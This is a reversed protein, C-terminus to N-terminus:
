LVLFAYSWNVHYQSIDLYCWSYHYFVDQSDQKLKGLNQLFGQPYHSWNKNFKRTNKIFPSLCCGCLINTIISLHPCLFQTSIISWRGDRPPQKVKFSLSLRPLRSKRMQLILFIMCVNCPQQQSNCLLMGRHSRVFYVCM